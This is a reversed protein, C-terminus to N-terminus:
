CEGRSVVGGLLRRPQLTQYTGNLTRKRRLKKEKLGEKRFEATRARARMITSHDIQIDKGGPPPISGGTCRPAKSQKQL